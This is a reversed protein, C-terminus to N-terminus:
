RADRPATVVRPAVPVDGLRGPGASVRALVQEYADVVATRSYHAEAQARGRRGMEDRLDPSRHLKLIASALTGPDCPEIVIGSGSQTVLRWLDTDREASALLPRGSAMIEYVKSPLSHASAGPLNLAVQVDSAARVLPLREFPQFPLFRVNDLSLRVAKDQLAARMVGDGVILFIIDDYERLLSATEIMTDLDYAYGVNGAHSVVFKDNLGHERSFGNDKPLPRIFETDVFNPIVSIKRDPVGISHLHQAFYPTIVSIHAARACMYRELRRLVSVLWNSKIQGTRIPTEPYLDQINLVFPVRHIAGIVSASLGSFFGGNTCLIVDYKERRVLGAVIALANFSLYSLSRHLMQQKRGRAYVYLRLVDIGKFTSRESLKGRYEDWVRFHEYHPFTTIVSVHHGREILSACLQALLLGTSNVDPPFQLILLLIRM